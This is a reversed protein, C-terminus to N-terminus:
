DFVRSRLAETDAQREALAAYIDVMASASPSLRAHLIEVLEYVISRSAPPVQLMGYALIRAYKSVKTSLM